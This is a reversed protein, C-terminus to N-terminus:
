ICCAVEDENSLVPEVWSFTGVHSFYQQIPRLSEVWVFSSCCCMALGPSSCLVRTSLTLVGTM